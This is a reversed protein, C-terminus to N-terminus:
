TADWEVEEWFSLAKLERDESVHLTVFRTLLRRHAAAHRPRLLSVEDCRGEILFALASRDDAKLRTTTGAVHTGKACPACLLGGEAVSFTAPGDPIQRGDRACGDMAPEFGLACVLGWLASLSTTELHEEPVTSLSDLYAVMRTFIEDNREAPAFRLVLEALASASAFRRVDGTLEHRLNTVEFEALTHLDRNHKLYIQAIGESLQQLRAGFKSKPREAGKAVGSVVGCERTLMRVIKSSESYKFAHLIIAKTSLPPM